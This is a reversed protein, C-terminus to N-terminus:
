DLKLKNMIKFLSIAGITAVVLLIFGQILNGYVLGGIGFLSAYITLCGIFVLLIQKPMQWGVGNGDDCPEGDAQADEVVKRWGPGGPKTLKYFSRLIEKDEPKTVLTSILWSITVIVITILLKITFGDLIDTAVSADEVFLVLVIACITAVVMTVIETIANIRYWYWRLMYVAGSGAGTLLLINFAETANDLVTLSLTGALVM